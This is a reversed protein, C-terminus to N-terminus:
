GIEINGKSKTVTKSTHELAEVDGKRIYIGVIYEGDAINRTPILTRFGSYDLNVGLEQFYRTVDPREEVQTDFIRTQSPSRLVIYVKSNESDEGEIFAWGRMEVVTHSDTWVEEIRCRMGNTEAPLQLQQLQAEGPIRDVRELRDFLPETLFVMFLAFGVVISTHTIVQKRHAKLWDRSSM